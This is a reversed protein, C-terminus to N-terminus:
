SLVQARAETHFQDWTERRPRGPNWCRLYCRWATEHDADVPPIPKSDAWLFLRAMGAALVDNHELASHLLIQDFPVKCAKALTMAHERTAPNTMVCFVGGRENMWFGRARGKDYPNGPVKQYRYAFRSEQRGIALLMVRAGDNDMARPLLLLAPNVMTHLVVDLLIM